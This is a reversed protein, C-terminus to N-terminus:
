KSPEATSSHAYNGEIQLYNLLSDSSVEFLDCFRGEKTHVYCYMLGIQYRELMERPLDCICDATIAVKRKRVGTIQNIGGDEELDPADDKASYEILESPLYKQLSAELLAANIPKALYGDFGMDQYVQEANTMVNATLAIIPVKQCFGKTQARVAQMTEEGDMDPM